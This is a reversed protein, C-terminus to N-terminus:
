LVKYIQIGSLNYVQKLYNQRELIQRASPFKQNEEDGSYIYNVHYQKLVKKANEINEPNKYVSEINVWRTFVNDDGKNFGHSHPWVTYSLVRLRGGIESVASHVTPMTVFVSNPLTNGRIWIGAKYDAESYGKYKNFFSSGLTLFSNFSSIIILLIVILSGLQFDRWIKQLLLGSILSLPILLFYFFKLMDGDYITFYVTYPIFYLAISLVLLCLISKTVNVRKLFVLLIFLLFFLTPVGFNVFPFALYWFFSKAQDWPGFRFNALLASVVYSNSSFFLSTFILSLIIPVLYYLLTSLEKRFNRSAFVFWTLFFVLISIGFAFLQFKVLMGTLFGALLFYKKSDKSFGSVLLLMILAVAPLGVMMPRNQLFYDAMPVMQMLQGYDLTYSHNALIDRILVLYNASKGLNNYVDSFFRLYLFNGSFVVLLGSILAALRGKFFSFSLAYVSLFFLLVFFPNDYVLVRPFFNGYLVQLIASHLDIFYYYNLPQGSFYPAQPPFNGQSLTQIISQHMATDQWNVSSMVFYNQYSSFIAPYLAILFLTFIVLSLYIAVRHGRFYSFSGKVKKNILFIILWIAYILITLLISIRSFGLLLGAVYVSYTSVLVSTLLQLPLKQIVPIEPFFTEIILFGPIFFTFIFGLVLLPIDVAM